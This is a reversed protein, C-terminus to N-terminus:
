YGGWVGGMLIISSLSSIAMLLCAMATQKIKGDNLTIAILAPILFLWIANTITRTGIVVFFYTGICSIVVSVIIQLAPNRIIKVIQM